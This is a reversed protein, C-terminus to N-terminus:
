RKGRGASLLSVASLGLLGAGGAALGWWWWAPGGGDTPEKAAPLAGVAADRDVVATAAPSAEGPEITLCVENSPRSMGWENASSVRYCWYGAMGCRETYAAKSFAAKNPEIVETGLSPGEFSLVFCAEDTSNDDWAFDVFSPQPL